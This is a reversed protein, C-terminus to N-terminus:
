RLLILTSSIEQRQCDRFSKQRRLHFSSLFINCMLFYCSSFSTESRYIFSTRVTHLSLVYEADSDFWQQSNKGPGKGSSQGTIERGMERLLPHMGLKNNKDVKLLSREILVKIGSDADVGCGNLINTVYTRGKGVFSSCVDLFLDKEMQNRLGDFSIKLIEPVEHDPINELRFLVRKWEEKTRGYLYSGIVELTLPLGGCRTVVTKALDTFEEKPKAEKFAHWSLLELSEDPNMLNIRFVSDFEDIRALNQNTTTIIMVYGGSLWYRRSKRLLSPKLKPVDDLVILARKGSLTEWIGTRGIEISDIEVKTELLDSLVQKQLRLDGRIRSRQGIDEIFSKETFRGHIRNYIAKVLSTKDSGEQGCIM